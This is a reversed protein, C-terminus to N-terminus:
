AQLLINNLQKGFLKAVKHSSNKKLNKEKNGCKKNKNGKTLFDKRSM